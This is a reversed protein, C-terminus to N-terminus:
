ASSREQRLGLYLGLLYLAEYSDGNIASLLRRADDSSFPQVKQKPEPIPDSLEAANRSILGRHQARKLASVLSRRIHIKTWAALHLQSFFRDVHEPTLQAVKLHGFAPLLHHNVHGVYLEYTGPSVAATKADLWSELVDKVRLDPGAKLTGQDRETRLQSLMEQAQRQTAAYRTKRRGGPLSIQAIWRVAGSRTKRRSISGM